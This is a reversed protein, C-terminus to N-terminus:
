FKGARRLRPTPQTSPDVPYNLIKYETIFKQVAEIGGSILAEKKKRSWGKIRKEFAKAACRSEVTEVFVIKFPLRKSVYSGLRYDCTIHQEIRQSINDTSGVYYSGDNCQLIYIFFESM